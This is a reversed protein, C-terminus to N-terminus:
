LWLMGVFDLGVLLPWALWCLMAPYTMELCFPALLRDVLYVLLLLAPLGLLAGLLVAALAPRLHWYVAVTAAASAPMFLGGCVGLVAWRQRSFAVAAAGLLALSLANLDM